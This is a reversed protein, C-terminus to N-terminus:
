RLRRPSRPWTNGRGEPRAVVLLSLLQTAGPRCLSTIDADGGPFRIEGARQGDVFVIAFSNLYEFRAVIRRGNWDNPITIEREYWAAVISGLKLGRWSPHVFVTQSDKQMYDSIGQWCGPVKFYGWNGAPVTEAPADAPQWRWLGNLCVRERTPTTERYAKTIDWVGQTGEPLSVTFSDAAHTVLGGLALTVVWNSRFSNKM